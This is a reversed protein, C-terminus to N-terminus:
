SEEVTQTPTVPPATRNAGLAAELGQIRQATEELRAQLGSLQDDVTNVPVFFRKLGEPLHQDSPVDVYNPIVGMQQLIVGLEGATISADIRLVYKKNMWM